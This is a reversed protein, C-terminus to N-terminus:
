CGASTISRKRQATPSNIMGGAKTRHGGGEGLNHLLKRILDAASLKPDATRISVVLKGDYVATVM